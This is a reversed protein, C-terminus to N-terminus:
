PRETRPKPALNWRQWRAIKLTIWTLAATWLILGGVIPLLGTAAAYTPTEFYSLALVGAGAYCAAAAAIQLRMALITDGWPM